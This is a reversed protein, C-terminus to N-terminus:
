GEMQKGLFNAAIIAAKQETETLPNRGDKNLVVVAKTKKGQEILFWPFCSPPISGKENYKMIITGNRVGDIVRNKLPYRFNKRIINFSSYLDEITITRGNRMVDMVANTLRGDTDLQRYCFTDRVNKM